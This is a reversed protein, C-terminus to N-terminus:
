VWEEAGKRPAGDEGLAQRGLLVDEEDGSGIDQEVRAVGLRARGQRGGYGRVLEQSAMHQAYGRWLALSGAPLISSDLVEALHAPPRFDVAGDVAPAHDDLVVDDVGVLTGEVM